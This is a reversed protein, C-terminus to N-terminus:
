FLRSPSVQSMLRLLSFRYDLHMSPRMISCTWPHMAAFALWAISKVSASKTCIACFSRNLLRFPQCAIPSCINCPKLWQLDCGSVLLCAAQTSGSTEPHCLLTVNLYRSTTKQMQGLKCSTVFRIHGWERGLARAQADPIKPFVTDQPFHPPFLLM